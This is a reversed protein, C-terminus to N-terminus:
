SSWRRPWRITPCPSCSRTTRPWSSGAPRWNKWISGSRIRPFGRPTSCTSGPAATRGAPHPRDPDATRAGPRRRHRGHGRGARGPLRRFGNAPSEAATRRVGGAPRRGASLGVPRRATGSAALGAIPDPATGPQRRSGQAGGTKGARVRVGGSPRSAAAVPPHAGTRGANQLHAVVHSEFTAHPTRERWGNQRRTENMAIYSKM